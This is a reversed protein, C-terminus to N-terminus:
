SFRNVIENVINGYSEGFLITHVLLPYLNHLDVREDFGAELPFFKNYAEFVTKSFGGFLRMMSLDMERHGYYVAPDYISAGENTQMANGSWLDGHLLAPKETPIFTNWRSLLKETKRSVATSIARKDRALRLLPLIRETAFFKQWNGYQTNIQPLNGIYNNTSLGFHTNTNKHLAALKLGFEKAHITDTEKLFSLLLFGTEETEYVEILEPIVFKSHQKLLTLGDAEAVFFNSATQRKFKVFFSKGGYELKFADNIDGGSLPSLQIESLNVNSLFQCHKLLFTLYKQATKAVM